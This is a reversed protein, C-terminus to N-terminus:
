RSISFEGIAFGRPDNASITISAVDKWRHRLLEPYVDTPPRPAAYSPTADRRNAGWREQSAPVGICLSAKLPCPESIAAACHPLARPGCSIPSRRPHAFSQASDAARAGYRQADRNQGSRRAAALRISRRGLARPGPARAHARRGTGACALPALGGGGGASPAATAPGSSPPRLWWDPDTAARVTAEETDAQWVPM